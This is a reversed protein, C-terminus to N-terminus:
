IWNRKKDHTMYNNNTQPEDYSAEWTAKYVILVDKCRKRLEPSGSERQYKTPHYDVTGDLNYGQDHSISNKM